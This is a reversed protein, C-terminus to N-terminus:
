TRAVHLKHGDRLPIFASTVEHAKAPLTIDVVHLGDKASVFLGLRAVDEILEFVVAAPQLLDEAALRDRLWIWGAALDM